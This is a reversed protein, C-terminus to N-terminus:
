KSLQITGPRSNTLWVQQTFAGNVAADWVELRVWKRGKLNTNFTFKQKGFPRTNTLDIRERFVQKGDGSIIEAFTLPFTWDMEVALRAKGDPKLALSDGAGKGNVTFTPLLVEGTSVFFKGQQMADLVPQWGQKYDPLKDLQLYNVNLHAYMENEPEITFLDAEAIVHKKLGWNAMDDMLDLVRRSLRPESLDAPINKWAAGFFRDSKYFEEDKYKDPFGTSGKTRAHATWALGNEAKLLKLMDTKDAIRYVKGYIPDNTVFPMDPKRSMIWYVPKPFFDLWHGGFFENPEEGPLLLLEKDSWRKCMDHLTKLELLRQDDPGKPHATYHFEALHVIDVGTNKFVRVFNPVEPVSNVAVSNVAVSNVAVSKEAVSKEAVPKGALLVKMVYENHFHSSMTKYGPLAPYKDNHTFKKVEDLAKDPTDTSLLCFFNLRQQTKPPANVWPVWRKDGMLDQRIGIGFDPVLSRYGRGYWTFDLNFAEDLPYFYQHPAPFVALSGTAGSGIITRYKVGQAKNPQKLEAPVHQMKGDTDSWAITNWVPLKSTLGADYLIATSDVETAMVAAINILPSGSYVTIEIAGTFTAARVDSVRVITRSGESRVSATRKDLEVAYSKHPMKNTKDFFINWGNQSVLDRKGVTLVFAPDLAKAIEKFTGKQSLQMNSFLPKGSALDIVLKGTEKLNAPWSVILTNGQSVATAGSSKQFGSLDVPTQGYTLASIILLVLLLREKM